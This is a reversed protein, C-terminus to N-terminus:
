PSVILPDPRGPAGAAATFSQAPGLTWVTDWRAVALMRDASGEGPDWLVALAPLGEFAALVGEGEAGLGGVTLIVEAEGYRGTGDGPLQYVRGGDDGSPGVFLDVIGDGDPDGVDVSGSVVPPRARVVGGFFSGDGRGAHLRCEPGAAEEACILLDSAGDGNLDRVRPVVAWAAGSSVAPIHVTVPRVLYGGAGDGLQIQVDGANAGTLVVTVVDGAGDGDLDGAAVLVSEGGLVISQGDPASWGGACSRGVRVVQDAGPDAPDIQQRLWQTVGSGDGPVIAGVVGAPVPIGLSEPAVLADDALGWLRLDGGPGAVGVLPELEEPTPEDVLGDCDNDLGDCAEPAGVGADPDSDECDGECPSAGDGDADVEDLPVLGDCDNDLGDCAELMGPAITPDTDDCDVCDDAGDGDDDALEPDAGDVLGDCDNDVGDCVEQLGVAVAPDGDDCDGEGPLVGDGDSDLPAGPYFVGPGCGILLAGLAAVIVRDMM